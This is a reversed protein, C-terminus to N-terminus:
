PRHLQSDSLPFSCLAPCQVANNKNEGAHFHSISRHHGIFLLTQDVPRLDSEKLKPFAMAEILENNFLV